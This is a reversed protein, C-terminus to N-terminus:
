DNQELIERVGWLGSSHVLKHFDGALLLLLLGGRGVLKGGGGGSREKEYM